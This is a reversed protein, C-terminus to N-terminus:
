NMADHIASDAAEVAEEGKEWATEAADQVAEGAEEAMETVRDGLRDASAEASEMADAATNTVEDHLSENEPASQGCGALGIVVLMSMMLRFSM